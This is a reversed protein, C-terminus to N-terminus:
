QTYTKKRIGEELQLIKSSSIFYIASVTYTYSLFTKSTQWKYFKCIADELMHTNSGNLMIYYKFCLTISLVLFFSDLSLLFLM